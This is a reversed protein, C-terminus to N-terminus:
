ITELIWKVEDPFYELGSMSASVKGSWVRILGNRAKEFNEKDFFTPCQLKKLKEIDINDENTKMM